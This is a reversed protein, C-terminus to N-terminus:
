ASPLCSGRPTEGVAFREATAANGTAPAQPAVLLVLPAEAAARPPPAAEMNALRGVVARWGQGRGGRSPPPEFLIYRALAQRSTAPFGAPGTVRFGRSQRGYRRERQDNRGLVPGSGTASGTPQEHRSGGASCGRPLRQASRLRPWRRGGAGAGFDASPAAAPCRRAACCSPANPPPRIPAAPRPPVPRAGWPRARTRRRSVPPASCADSSCCRALLPPLDRLPARVPRLAGVVREAVRRWPMPLLLSRIRLALHTADRQPARPAGHM